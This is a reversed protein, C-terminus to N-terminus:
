LDSKWFLFIAAGAPVGAYVWRVVKGGWWELEGGNPGYGPLALVPIKAAWVDLAPFLSYAIGALLVCAAVLFPRPHNM